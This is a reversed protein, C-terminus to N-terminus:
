LSATFPRLDDTTLTGGRRNSYEIIKRATKASMPAGGFWRYITYFHVGIRQALARVNVGGAEYRVEIPLGAAFTRYLETERISDDTESRRRRGGRSTKPQAATHQQATM